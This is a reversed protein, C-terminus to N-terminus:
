KSFFWYCVQAISGKLKYQTKNKELLPGLPVQGKTKEFTRVYARSYSLM